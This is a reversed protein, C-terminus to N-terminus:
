LGKGAEEKQLGGSSYGRYDIWTELKYSWHEVCYGTSHETYCATARRRAVDRLMYSGEFFTALTLRVALAGIHLTCNFM